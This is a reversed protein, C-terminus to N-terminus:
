VTGIYCLIRERRFQRVETIRIQEDTSDLSDHVADEEDKVDDLGRKGSGSGSNEPAEPTSTSPFAERPAIGDAVLIDTGTTM